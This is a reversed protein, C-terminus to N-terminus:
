IMVSETERLGDFSQISGVKCKRYSNRIVQFVLLVNSIQVCGSDSRRGSRLLSDCSTVFGHAWNYM